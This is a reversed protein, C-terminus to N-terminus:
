VVPARWAFSPELGETADRWRAAAGQELVEGGSELWRSAVFRLLEAWDEAGHSHGGPRVRMEVADPRGLFRAVERAALVSQATGEPNAWLDDVGCTVLLQRPVVAALLGHQDTPLEGERDVYAGLRPGFWGPFSSAVRMGESGEGAILFPAAGGAGSAHAHVIGIR